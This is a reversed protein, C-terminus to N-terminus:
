FAVDGQRSVSGMAGLPCVCTAAHNQGFIFAAYNYFCKTTVDSSFPPKKVQIGTSADLITTDTNLTKVSDSHGNV